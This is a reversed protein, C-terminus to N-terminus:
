HNACILTWINSGTWTKIKFDDEHDCYTVKGRRSIFVYVSSGFISTAHTKYVLNASFVILDTGELTKIEQERIEYSDTHKGMCTSLLSLIHNIKKKQTTTLRINNETM